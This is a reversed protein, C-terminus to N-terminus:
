VEDFRAIEVKGIGPMKELEPVLQSATAVM